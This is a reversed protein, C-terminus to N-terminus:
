APSVHDDNASGDLRGCRQVYVVRGTAVALVAKHDGDKFTTYTDDSVFYAATVDLLTTGGDEEDVLIKYGYLDTTTTM